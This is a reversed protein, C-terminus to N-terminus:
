NIQYVLIEDDNSLVTLEIANDRDANSIDASSIGYVPFGGVPTGNSYFLYVKQADIDTITIYLTNKIVSFNKLQHPLSIESLFVSNIVSAVLPVVM